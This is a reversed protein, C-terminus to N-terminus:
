PRESITSGHPITRASAGSSGPTIAASSSRARSSSTRRRRGGRALRWGSAYRQGAGKQAGESGNEEIDVERQRPRPRFETGLTVATEALPEAELEFGGAVSIRAGCRELADLAMRLEDVVLFDPDRERLLDDNAHPSLDRPRAFARDLHRARPLAGLVEIEVLVNQGHELLQAAVAELEAEDRVRPAVQALEERVVRERDVGREARTCMPPRLRMRADELRNELPEADLRILSRHDAVRGLVVDFPGPRHADACEQDIAVVPKRVYGVPQAIEVSKRRRETQRPGPSSRGSAARAAATSHGHGAPREEILFQKM